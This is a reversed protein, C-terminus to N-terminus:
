LTSEYTMTSLMPLLDVLNLKAKMSLANKFKTRQKLCNIFKEVIMQIKIKHIRKAYYRVKKHHTSDLFNVLYLM